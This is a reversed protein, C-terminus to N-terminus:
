PLHFARQLAGGKKMSKKFEEAEKDGWRASISTCCPPFFERELAPV